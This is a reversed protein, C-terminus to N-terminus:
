ISGCASAGLPIAIIRITVPVVGDHIMGLQRAARMSLDLKRGKRLPGCDNIRVKVSRGNRLNTVVVRAGIPLEKSAATMGHPSFKEGCSTKRGRFKPGYWSARTITERPREATQPAVPPSPPAPQAIVAPPEYHVPPTSPACADIMGLVALLLLWRFRRLLFHETHLLAHSAVQRCTRGHVQAVYSSGVKVAGDSM